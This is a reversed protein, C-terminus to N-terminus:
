EGPSRAQAAFSSHRAPRTPIGVRRDAAARDGCQRHQGDIGLARAAAALRREATTRHLHQRALARLGHPRRAASSQHDRRAEATARLHRLHRRGCLRPPRLQPRRRVAGTGLQAHARGARRQRRARRPLHAHVQGAPLRQAQHVELGLADCYFKLSADVDTVRVMTHLYKMDPAPRHWRRSVMAEIDPAGHLLSRKSRRM